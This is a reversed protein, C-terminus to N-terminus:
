SREPDRIETPEEINIHIGYGALHLHTLMKAIGAVLGRKYESVLQACKQRDPHGPAKRTLWEEYFKRVYTTFEPENYM